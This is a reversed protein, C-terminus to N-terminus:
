HKLGLPIKIWIREHVYYLIFKSILELLAIFLAIENFDNLVAGSILFTTTTAVFRWSITKLLSQQKSFTFSKIVKLWIREHAYYILLKLFFEIVGIKIANEVSCQDLLCTIIFVVLFTDSTAIMRWSIGKVISRVHSENIM